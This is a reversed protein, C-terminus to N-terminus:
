QRAIGREEEVIKNGARTIWDGAGDTPAVVEKLQLLHDFYYSRPVAWAQPMLVPWSTAVM